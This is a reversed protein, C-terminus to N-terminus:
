DAAMHMNEAGGGPWAVQVGSASPQLGVPYLHAYAPHSCSRSKKKHMQPKSCHPSETNM